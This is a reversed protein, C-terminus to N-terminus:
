GCKLVGKETLVYDLAQDHADHVVSDVEQAAYAVGIAIIPKKSRLLELTRDYFGGGYGLRFGRADFAMMPVLLVDPEVIPADCTPRPIDWVGAITPEGPLWRRFVLPEGLAIVIPLCTTWGEGALKGLLPRTDIESKYPFFASVIKRGVTPNVPFDHEVLRLPAEDKVLDHAAKRVKAAAKRAEAKLISFETMPSACFLHRGALATPVLSGQDRSAYTPATHASGRNLV